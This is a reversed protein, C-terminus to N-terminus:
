PTILIDEGQRSIRMNLTLSLAELLTDLNDTPIIGTVKRNMVTEDAPRVTLGYTDTLMAAVQHLPTEDLVWKRELWARRAPVNVPRKHWQKRERSFTVGEGPQMLVDEAVAALDLKVKGSQLVVETREQRTSVNFETGLVEVDLDRTHVVFRAPLAPSRGDAPLTRKRVHFFAEGELWVERVPGHQLDGAFRLTSHANLTVTTGDPLTFGRTQGYGTAYQQRNWPGTLFWASLAAGLVLLAVAAWRWVPLARTAAAPHMQPAGSAEDLRADIQAWLSEVKEGPLRREEFRIALLLQRANEVTERKGPHERLWQEWFQRSRDDPHKVWQRFFPDDVFDEETFHPYDESM